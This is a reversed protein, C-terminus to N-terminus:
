EGCETCENQESSRLQKCWDTGYQKKWGACKLSSGISSSYSSYSNYSNEGWSNYSNEVAASVAAAMSMISYVILGIYIATEILFVITSYHAWRKVKRPPHPPPPPLLPPPPLPPTPPSPFFLLFLCFVTNPYYQVYVSVACYNRKRKMRRQHYKPVSTKGYYEYVRLLGVHLVASMMRVYLIAIGTNWERHEM